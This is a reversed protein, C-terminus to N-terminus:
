NNTNALDLFIRYGKNSKILEDHTGFFANGNEIFIVKDVYSLVDLHHSILIITKDNYQDNKLVNRYINIRNNPDLNSLAEDWFILKKNFLSKAILLRQIQGVSLNKGNQLVCSYIKNPLSNILNIINVDCLIQNLRHINDAKGGDVLNNYISEKTLTMNQLVVGTVKRFDKYGYVIEGTYTYLSLLINLMTSKGSGSNGVIAVREGKKIQFTINEFIPKNEVYGFKVNKLSVAKDSEQESVIRQTNSEIFLDNIKEGTVKIKSFEFMVDQLQSVSSNFISIGSQFLILDAITINGYKTLHIGIIMLLIVSSYNFIQNFTYSIGEIKLISNYANVIKWNNDKWTNITSSEQAQAKIQDIQSLSEQALSSFQIIREGYEINLQNKKIYIFISILSYIIFMGLLLLSLLLSVTLMYLYLVSVTSFSLFSPLIKLLITDKIITKLNIKEMVTDITSNRFYLLPKNFLANFMNYSITKEYIKNEKIQAEQKFIFSFMQIIIIIVIMSLSILYTYKQNIINRIVISFILVVIQALIVSASFLIINKNILVTKLYGFFELDEKGKIFGRQPNFMLLVNSFHELFVEKSVNVKGIEPNVIEVYNKKVNMVVVFHNLDWHVIIPKKIKSMVQFTKEKDKIRYVKMDLKYKINLDKLYSISLGDPPIMERKYLRSISVNKGFYSLIMSYCALLCDQDNNQLAIKM